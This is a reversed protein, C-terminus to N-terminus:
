RQLQLRLLSFIIIDSGGESCCAKLSCFASTMSLSILLDHETLLIKIRFDFSIPSQEAHVVCPAEAQERRQCLSGTLAGQSTRGRFSLCVDKSGQM